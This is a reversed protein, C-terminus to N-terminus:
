ILFALLSTVFALLGFNLPRFSAPLRADLLLSTMNMGHKFRQASCIQHQTHLPIHHPSTPHQTSDSTPPPHTFPLTALVL